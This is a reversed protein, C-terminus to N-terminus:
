TKKRTSKKRRGGRIIRKTKNRNSKRPGEKNIIKPMMDKCNNKGNHLLHLNPLLFLRYFHLYNKHPFRNKGFFALTDTRGPSIFINRIMRKTADVISLNSGQQQFVGNRTDLKWWTSDVDFKFDYKSKIEYYLGDNEFERKFDIATKTVEYWTHHFCGVLFSAAIMYIDNLDTYGMLVALQLYKWTSGSISAQKLKFKINEKVQSTRDERLEDIIEKKNLISVELPKLKFKTFGSSWNIKDRSNNTDSKNYKNLYDLERSTLEVPVGVYNGGEKTAIRSTSFELIVSDINSFFEKGVQIMREEQQVEVIGRWKSKSQNYDFCIPFKGSPITNQKQNTVNFDRKGSDKLTNFTNKFIEINLIFNKLLSYKSQSFLSSNIDNKMIKEVIMNLPPGHKGELVLRLQKDKHVQGIEYFEQQYDSGRFHPTCNWFCNMLQCKMRFNLKELGDKTLDNENIEFSGPYSYKPKDVTQHPMAFNLMKVLNYRENIDPEPLNYERDISKCVELGLNCIQILRELFNTLSENLKLDNQIINALLAAKESEFIMENFPLEKKLIDDNKVREFNNKIKIELEETSEYYKNDDILDKDINIFTSAGIYEKIMEDKEKETRQNYYSFFWFPIPISKSQQIDEAELNLEKIHSPYLNNYVGYEDNTMFERLEKCSTIM